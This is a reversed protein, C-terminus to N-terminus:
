TAWGVTVYDGYNATWVQFYRYRVTGYVVSVWPGGYESGGSMATTIELGTMAAGSIGGITGWGAGGEGAYVWRCYQVPYGPNPFNAPTWPAPFDRSTWVRYLAGGYSWGGVVLDGNAQMGFNGGFAGQYHFSICPRSGSKIEVGCPGGFMIDQTNQVSLSGNCNLAGNMTDGYRSIRTADGAAATNDVYNKNAVHNGGLPDGVISVRGDSRSIYLPSDILSGSDTYRNIAYDSGANGGSDPGAGMYSSWRALGDRYSYIGANGSPGVAALNITPSANQIGLTGTMTDGSLAVRATDAPHVHDERAYKISVGVAGTGFNALPIATAPASSITTGGITTWKEGDWTYQAQGSIPTPPFKEGNVPANPFDLAAM